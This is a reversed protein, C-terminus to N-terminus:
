KKQNLVQKEKKLKLKRDLFSHLQEDFHWLLLNGLVGAVMCLILIVFPDLHILLLRNISLLILPTIWGTVFVGVVVLVLLIILNFRLMVLVFSFVYFKDVFFLMLIFLFSFNTM